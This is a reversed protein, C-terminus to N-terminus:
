IWSCKLAWTKQKIDVSKFGGETVAKHKLEELISNSTLTLLALYVKKSVALSKFIIIKGELSLQRM